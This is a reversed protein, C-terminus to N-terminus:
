LAFLKIQKWGNEWRARAGTLTDAGSFFNGNLTSLSLIYIYM